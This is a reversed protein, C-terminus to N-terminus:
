GQQFILVKLEYAECIMLVLIDADKTRLNPTYCSIFISLSQKSIVADISGHQLQQFTVLSQFM